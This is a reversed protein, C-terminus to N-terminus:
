NDNKSPYIRYENVWFVKNEGMKYRRYVNSTIKEILRISAENGEAVPYRIYDIDLQEAAWKMTFNAVRYGLGKGQADEKLWIGFHPKRKMIGHIGCCGCFESGSLIVWVIDTKNRMQEISNYIFRDTQEIQEPPHEVLLFKIVTENFERFIDERYEASVPTLSLQDDIKLPVFM